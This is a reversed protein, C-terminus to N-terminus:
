VSLLNPIPFPRTRDSFTPNTASADVMILGSLPGIAFPVCWQDGDPNIGDKGFWHACTM